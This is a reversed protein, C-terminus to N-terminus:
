SLKQFSPNDRQGGQTVGPIPERGCGGAEQPEVLCLGQASHSASGRRDGARGKTGSYCGALGLPQILCVHMSIAWQARRTPLAGPSVEAEQDGSRLEFFFFFVSASGVEEFRRPESGEEEDEPFHQGM